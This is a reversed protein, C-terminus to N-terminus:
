VFVFTNEIFKDLKKVDYGPDKIFEEYKDYIDPYSSKIVEIMLQKHTKSSNLKYFIDENLDYVGEGSMGTMRYTKLKQKYKDSKEIEQWLYHADNLTEEFLPYEAGKIKVLGELLEEIDEDKLEKVTEISALLVSKEVDGQHITSLYKELAIKTIWSYNCEFNVKM